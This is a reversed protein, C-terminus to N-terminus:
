YLLSRILRSSVWLANPYGFFSLYIGGITKTDCVKINLVEVFCYLVAWSCLFGLLLVLPRQYKVHLFVLQIATGSGILLGAAPQLIILLCLVVANVTLWSLDWECVSWAIIMFSSSLLFGSIGLWETASSAFVPAVFILAVCPSLSLGKVEYISYGTSLLSAVLLIIGFQAVDHEVYENVSLPVWVSTSHHFREDLYSLTAIIQEHLAALSYANSAERSGDTEATSISLLSIGHSRFNYWALPSQPAVLATQLAALYHQYRSREVFYKIYPNQCLLDIQFGRQIGIAAAVNFLDQNPQMGNKGYVGFCLKHTNLSSINIAVASRVFASPIPWHPASSNVFYFDVDCAMSERRRLVDMLNNALVISSKEATNVYVAITEAGVSRRGHVIRHDQLVKTDYRSADFPTVLVPINGVNVASEDIFNRKPKLIPISGILLIGAVLFLPAASAAHSKLGKVIRDRLM